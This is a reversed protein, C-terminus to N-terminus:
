WDGRGGSSRAAAMLATVSASTSDYPRCGSCIWTKKWSTGSSRQPRPPTSADSGLLPHADVADRRDAVQRRRGEAETRRRQELLHEALESDRTREDNGIGADPRGAHGPVPPSTPRAAIILTSPRLSSKMLGCRNGARARQSGSRVSSSGGYRVAAVPM